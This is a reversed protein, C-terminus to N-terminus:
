QYVATAFGGPDGVNAWRLTEVCKGDASTAYFTTLCYGRAMTRRSPGDGPKPLWGLNFIMDRTAKMIFFSGGVMGLLGGILVSTINPMGMVENYALKPSYGIENNTWEVVKSNVPAMFFPITWAGAFRNYYVLPLVMRTEGKNPAQAAKGVITPPLGNELLHVVTDVTGGQAEGGM